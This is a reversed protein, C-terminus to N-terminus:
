VHQTRRNTPCQFWAHCGHREGGPLYEGTSYQCSWQHSRSVSMWVTTGAVGSWLRYLTPLWLVCDFVVLHKAGTARLFKSWNKGVTREAKKEEKSEKKSRSRIGKTGPRYFLDLGQNSKISILIHSTRGICLSNINDEGYRYNWTPKGGVYKLHLEGDFKSKDRLDSLLDKVFKQKELVTVLLPAIENMSITAFKPPALKTTLLEKPLKERRALVTKNLKKTDMKEFIYDVLWQPTPPLKGQVKINALDSGFDSIPKGWKYGDKGDTTSVCPFSQHLIVEVDELINIKGVCTDFLSHYPFYIQEGGGPTTVWPFSQKWEDYPTSSHKALFKKFSRFGHFSDDEDNHNIELVFWNSNGFVILNPGWFCDYEKSTDLHTKSMEIVELMGQSFLEACNETTYEANNVNFCALEGKFPNEAAPIFGYKLMDIACTLVTSPGRGNCACLIDGFKEITTRPSSPKEKPSNHVIKQLCQSVNKMDSKSQTDTTRKLKKTERGLQSNVKEEKGDPFIESLKRKTTM